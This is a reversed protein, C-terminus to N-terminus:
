LRRRRWLSSPATGIKVKATKHVKTLHVAYGHLDFIEDCFQCQRFGSCSNFSATLAASNTLPQEEFTNTIIPSATKRSQETDFCPHKPWPPGLEDFWVTGGNHRVFYVIESCRRCKLSIATKRYEGCRGSEHIPTCAGGIYRFTIDQDCDWCQSM